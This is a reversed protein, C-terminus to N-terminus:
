VRTPGHYTQSPIRNNTTCLRTAPIVHVAVRQRYRQLIRPIHEYPKAEHVRALELRSLGIFLSSSNHQEPLSTLGSQWSPETRDLALKRLSGFRRAKSRRFPKGM